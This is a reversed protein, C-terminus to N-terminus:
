TETEIQKMSRIDSEPRLETCYIFYWLETQVEETQNDVENYERSMQRQRVRMRRGFLSGVHLPPAVRM